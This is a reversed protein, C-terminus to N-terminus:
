GSALAKGGSGDIHAISVQKKADWRQLISEDFDTIKLMGNVSLINEPKVNLWVATVNGNNDGGDVSHLDASCPCSAIGTCIKGGVNSRPAQVLTSRDNYSPELVLDWLPRVCGVRAELCDTSAM